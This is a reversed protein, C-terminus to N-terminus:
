TDDNGGERPQTHAWAFRAGGASSDDDLLTYQVGLCIYFIKISFDRTRLQAPPMRNAYWGVFAPFPDHVIGAISMFSAILFIGLQFPLNRELWITKSRSEKKLALLFLQPSDYADKPCLFLILYFKKNESFAFLFYSSFHCVFLMPLKSNLITTFMNFMTIAWALDSRFKILVAMLDALFNLKTILNLRHHRYNSNPM